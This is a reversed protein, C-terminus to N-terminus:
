KRSGMFSIAVLGLLAIGLIPMLSTLSTSGLLSGAQAASVGNVVTGNPLTISTTPATAVKAVSAANSFLSNFFSTLNLSSGSSSSGSSSPAQIFDGGTQTVTPLPQTSMVPMSGDDICSLDNPDTFDCGLAGMGHAAGYLGHLNGFSSIGIDDVPNGDLDWAQLRFIRSRPVMWGPGIGHSTDLPMVQGDVMACVFVHSWRFPEKANAAVTMIYVPIGLASLMAATLMTFGDCDESPDKMRVLVSPATLFDHEDELGVRFMTAEDLRFKICHKVYWFVAWALSAPSRDSGFSFHRVAYEATAEIAPDVAGFRIYEAMM